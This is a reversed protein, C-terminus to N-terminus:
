IVLNNVIVMKFVEQMRNYKMDAFYGYYVIKDRYSTFFASAKTFFHVPFLEYPLNLMPKPNDKVLSHHIHYLNIQQSKLIIIKQSDPKPPLSVFRLSIIRRM